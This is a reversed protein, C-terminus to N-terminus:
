KLVWLAYANGSAGVLGSLAALACLPRIWRSHAQTAWAAAWLVLSLKMVVVGISGLLGYVLCVAPNAEALQVLQPYQAAFMAFTLADASQGLLM